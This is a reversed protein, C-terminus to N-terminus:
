AKDKSPSIGFRATYAKYFASYDNYGCNKAADTVSAGHRIEERAAILRKIKVYNWFTSGTMLKFKRNLHTKSLFFKKSVQSLSIDDFISDNVYSLLEAEMYEGDETDQGIGEFAFKLEILFATLNSYLNFRKSDELEERAYLNELALRYLDSRFNDRRYRNLKGLPRDYFPALLSPTDKYLEPTFNLSFREYDSHEGNIKVRHIESQRMILVDKPRLKYETGEVLYSASGGIFYYIELMDHAHLKFSDAKPNKTISYAFIFDKDTYRRIEAM